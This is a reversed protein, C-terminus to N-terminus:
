NNYNVSVVFAFVDIDNCISFLSSSIVTKTQAVTFRKSSILSKSAETSFALCIIANRTLTEQKKAELYFIIM